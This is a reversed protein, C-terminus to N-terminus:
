QCVVGVGQGQCFCSSGLPVIQNGGCRVNGFTDCCWQGYTQVQPVQPVQYGGYYPTQYGGYYSGFSPTPSTNPYMTGYTDLNSKQQEARLCVSRAVAGQMESCDLANAPTSGLLASFSLASVVILRQM